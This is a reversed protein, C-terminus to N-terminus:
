GYMVQYFMERLKNVDPVAIFYVECDSVDVGNNQLHKIAADQHHEYEASLKSEFYAEHEAPARDKSKGLKEAFHKMETYCIVGVLRELRHGKKEGYVDLYELAAIKDAEGLAQLNSLDSIISYEVLYQKRNGAFGAVSEAYEKVGANASSALKSELFYLVMIGNEFSAHVGDLGHIPMNGNTKLAMKSALQGAKLEELAILYALLEGVESARHPHKKNFEIFTRKTEALLRASHALDGGTASQSARDAAQQRKHLPIVYNIAQLWLFEALAQLDPEDEKFRPYILAIPPSPKLQAGAPCKALFQRTGPTDRLANLAAGLGEDENSM